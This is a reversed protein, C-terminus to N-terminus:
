WSVSEGDSEGEETGRNRKSGGTRKDKETEVEKRKRGGTGIVAGTTAEEEVGTGTGWEAAGEQAESAAAHRVRRRCM